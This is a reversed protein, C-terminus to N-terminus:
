KEEVIPMLAILFGASIVAYALLFSITIFNLFETLLAFGVLPALIGILSGIFALIPVKFRFALFVLVFHVLFVIATIVINSMGLIQEAILENEGITFEDEGNGIIGSINCEITELYNGIISPAVFTYNFRGIDIITMESRNVFITTNPYYISIKATSETYTNNKCSGYLTCLESAFCTSTANVIPIIFSVILVFILLLIAKKM